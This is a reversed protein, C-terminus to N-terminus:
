AVYGSFSKNTSTNKVLKAQLTPDVYLPLTIVPPLQGHDGSWVILKDGYPRNVGFIVQLIIDWWGNLDGCVM